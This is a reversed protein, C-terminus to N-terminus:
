IDDWLSKERVLWHFHERNKSKDSEKIKSQVNILYPKGQKNVWYFMLEIPSAKKNLKNM